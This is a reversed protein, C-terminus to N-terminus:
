RSADSGQVPKQPVLGRYRLFLYTLLIGVVLGALGTALAPLWEAGPECPAPEPESLTAAPPPAHMHLASPEATALTSNKQELEAIRRHDELRVQESRHVLAVNTFHRRFFAEQAEKVTWDHKKGLRRNIDNHFDVLFQLVAAQSSLDVRDEFRAWYAQAHMSCGPCPLLYFFNSLFMKLAQQKNKDASAPYQLAIFFLMDHFLTGWM